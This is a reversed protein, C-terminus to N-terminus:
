KMKGFPMIYLPEEEETMGAAEKLAADEFAGVACTGIDLALAQLYVNEASHGVDMYVYRTRGREGYVETTREFVASYVIAAAATEFHPQYLGAATLAEWRDEEAVAALDHTESRYRYVGAPLGEVRRAFLYVELPYRAGASPATRLGGRLFPPADAVPYTIGYAAWLLQSVEALSVPVDSYERVSRRGNLAEEVSVEGAKRSEPLAIVTSRSKGSDAARGREDPRVAASLCLIILASVVASRVM